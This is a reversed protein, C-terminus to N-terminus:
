VQHEERESGIGGWYRQHFRRQWILPMHFTRRNWMDTTLGSEAGEDRSIPHKRRRINLLGAIELHEELSFKGRADIYYKYISSASVLTQLLKM